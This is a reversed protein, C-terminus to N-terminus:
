AFDTAGFNGVDEVADLDFDQACFEDPYEWPYDLTAIDGYSARMGALYSALNMWHMLRVGHNRRGREPYCIAEYVLRKTARMLAQYATRICRLGADTLKVKRQRRDRFERGRIVWGLAELSRLMRSVVPASVGLERRLDSQRTPTCESAGKKPMLAFLMDLRAATLGRAVSQLPGRTVRLVGHFARKSAFFIANM